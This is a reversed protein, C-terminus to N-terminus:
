GNNKLLPIKYLARGLFQAKAWQWFHFGGLQGEGARGAEFGIEVAVGREMCLSVAFGDIGDRQNGVHEVSEHGSIPSESLASM